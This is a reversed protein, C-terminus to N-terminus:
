KWGREARIEDIAQDMALFLPEEEPPALAARIKYIRSINYTAFSIARLFEMGQELSSFEDAMSALRRMFVRLLNIESDLQLELRELDKIENPNFKQAYFGHKLANRNGRPAGGKNKKPQAAPEDLVFIPLDTAADVTAPIV